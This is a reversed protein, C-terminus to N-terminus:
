WVTAGMEELWNSWSSDALHREGFSADYSVIQPLDDLSGTALQLGQRKRFDYIAKRHRQQHYAIAEDTWGLKMLRIREARVEQRTKSAYDFRITLSDNAPLSRAHRWDCIAHRGVGETEAIMRDNLGLSYLEM